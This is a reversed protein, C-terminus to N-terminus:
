VMDLPCEWESHKNTYRPCFVVLNHEALAQKLKAQLVHLQMTLTGLINTKFDELLNCIEMRTIGGSHPKMGRSM